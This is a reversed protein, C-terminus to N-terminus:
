ESKLNRRVWQVLNTADQGTIKKFDELDGSSTMEHGEEIMKFTELM